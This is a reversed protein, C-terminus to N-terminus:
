GRLGTYGKLFSFLYGVISGILFTFADGSVVGDLTLWALVLVIVAVLSFIALMVRLKLGPGKELNKAFASIIQGIEPKHDELFIWLGDWDDDDSDDEPEEKPAEDKTDSESSM